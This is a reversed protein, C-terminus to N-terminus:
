GIWPWLLEVALRAGTYDTVRWYFMGLSPRGIQGLGPLAEEFRTLVDPVVFGGSQPVVVNLQRYGPRATESRAFTSGEGDFLGGAWALRELQRQRETIRVGEFICM